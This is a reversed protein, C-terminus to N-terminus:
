RRGAKGGEKWEEGHEGVAVEEREEEVENRVVRQAAEVAVEERTAGRAREGVGRQGRVGTEAAGLEGRLEEVGKAAASANTGGELGSVGDEGGERAAGGGRRLGRQVGEAGEDPQPEVGVMVGEVEQDVGVAGLAGEGVGEGREGCHLPKSKGWVSDGVVREEVRM